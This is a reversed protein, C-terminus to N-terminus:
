ILCLTRKLMLHRPTIISYSYAYLLLMEPAYECCAVDVFSQWTQPLLENKNVVM